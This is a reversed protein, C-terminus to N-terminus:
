ATGRGLTEILRLTDPDLYQTIPDVEGKYVRRFFVSVVLEHDKIKLEGIPIETLTVVADSWGTTVHKQDYASLLNWAALRYASPDYLAYVYECWNDALKEYRRILGYDNKDIVSGPTIEFKDKTYCIQQSFENDAWNLEPRKNQKLVFRIRKGSGLIITKINGKNVLDIIEQRMSLDPIQVADITTMNFYLPTTQFLEFNEELYNAIRELQSKNDNYYTKTEKSRNLIEDDAMNFLSKNLFYAGILVAALVLFGFTKAYRPVSRNKVMM